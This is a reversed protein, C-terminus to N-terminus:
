GPEVTSQGGSSGSSSSGATAGVPQPSGSQAAVEIRRPKLQEAVPITLTLVGQDYSAQMREVDLNEGLIIQRSFSGHPREDILLEDGEQRPSERSARVSVVNREATVEVKSPDVGPLDFHVYFSDGHRYAEMPIARLARGAGLLGQTLRDLDRFPDFRMITM